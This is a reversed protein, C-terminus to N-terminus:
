TVMQIIVITHCIYAVIVSENAAPEDTHIVIQLNKEVLSAESSPRLGASELPFLPPRGAPQFAYGFTDKHIRAELLGQRCRRVGSLRGFHGRRFICKAQRLPTLPMMGKAYVPLM